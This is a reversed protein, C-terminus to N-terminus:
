RAMGARGPKRRPNTRHAPLPQLAQFVSQQLHKVEEHTAGGQTIVANRLNLIRGATIRDFSSGDLTAGLFDVRDMICGQARCSKLRADQFSVSIMFSDQFRTHALSAGIINVMNLQVNYFGTNYITTNDFLCRNIHCGSFTCNRFASFTCDAGEPMNRFTVRDFYSERFFDPPFGHELAHDFMQQGIIKLPHSADPDFIEYKYNEYGGM